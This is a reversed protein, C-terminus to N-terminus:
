AVGPRSARSLARVITWSLDDSDLDEPNVEALYAEIAEMIVSAKEDDTM